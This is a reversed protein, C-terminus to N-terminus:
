NSNSDELDFLSLKKNFKCVMLQKTKKIIQFSESYNTLKIYQLVVCVSYVFYLM